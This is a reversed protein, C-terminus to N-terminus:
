KLEIGVGGGDFLMGSSFWYALPRGLLSDGGSASSSPIKKWTKSAAGASGM